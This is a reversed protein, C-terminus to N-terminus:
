EVTVTGTQAANLHNHYNYTGKETFVFSKSEGPKILGVTNLPPYTSHAPHPDSNVTANGQTNNTWTVKTGAKVTVTKPSYGSSTISVKVEQQNIQGSSTASASPSSQSQDSSVSPSPVVVPEQKFSKIYWWGAAFLLVLVIVVAILNRSSM